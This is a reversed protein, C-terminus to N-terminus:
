LRKKLQERLEDITLGSCGDNADNRAAVLLDQDDRATVTDLVSAYARVANLVSRMQSEESECRAILYSIFAPADLDELRGQNLDAIRRLLAAFSVRPHERLFADIIGPLPARAIDKFQQKVSEPFREGDRLYAFALITTDDSDNM